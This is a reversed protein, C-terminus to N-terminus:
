GKIQLVKNSQYFDEISDKEWWQNPFERNTITEPHVCPIRGPHWKWGAPWKEIPTEPKGARVKIPESGKFPSKLVRELAINFAVHHFQNAKGPKQYLAYPDFADEKTVLEKDYAYAFSETIQKAEDPHLRFYEAYGEIYEQIVGDYTLVIGQPTQCALRWNGIGYKEDWLKEQVERNKGFYGPRDVTIWNVKSMGKECPKEKTM